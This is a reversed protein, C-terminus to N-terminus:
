KECVWIKRNFKAKGRKNVSCYESIELGAQSILGTIDSTSIIVIRNAISATSAIIHLLKTDDTSSFINYPLDIIAANYKKGIDNIDSHHVSATYNFHALNERAHNCVKENIDCGEINNGSLCAELMITGVGCCADLLTTEKNGKTALNILAKAIRM